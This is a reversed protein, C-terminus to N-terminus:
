MLINIIIRTPKEFWKFQVHRSPVKSSLNVCLIANMESIEVEDHNLRDIGMLKLFKSKTM